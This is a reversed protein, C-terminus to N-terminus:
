YIQVNSFSLNILFYIIYINKNSKTKNQITKQKNQNESRM